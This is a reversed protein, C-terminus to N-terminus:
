RLLWAAANREQANPRASAKPRGELLALGAVSGYPLGLTISM